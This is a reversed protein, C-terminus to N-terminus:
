PRGEKVARLDQQLRHRARHLTVAVTVRSLGLMRAIEKNPYGELYRLTFVEAVRPPLRALAKRLAHRIEGAERAREPTDHSRWTAGDAEDLEVNAKRTRLLDLAANVASRYLYGAVNGGPDLPAGSQALRLFLGQLVDEADHANGTVRYAARYLRAHHAVFLEEVWAPGRRVDRAETMAAVAM